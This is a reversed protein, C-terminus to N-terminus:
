RAGGSELTSITHPVIEARVFDGFSRCPMPAGELAARTARMADADEVIGDHGRTFFTEIVTRQTADDSTAHDAPVVYDYTSGVTTIQVNDPLPAADLRRMFPSHEDLDRLAASNLDPARVGAVDNVVDIAGKGGPVDRVRAALTAGPAGELPSSLTVVTGFPPYSPDGPRYVLKLFALVVVGGQSHAILDIERGPDNRQQQRLQAALRRASDLIPGYTDKKDYRQGHGGYSYYSVEDARYGLEAVPLDLSVGDADSRSDIGAIVMLRHGSGGGGDAAPASADCRRREDLYTLMGRGLAVGPNRALTGTLHEASARGVASAADVAISGAAAAVRGVGALEGRLGDLLSRREEYASFGFPETTPALHVVRTLDVAGFLLMPDVYEDRVRLGFHLVQAVHNAGTGGSTGVIDGARVHQGKRVSATALFSYSTRLADAHAIVVHLAGAVNGAVTVEGPGAARVPTGAAASFDVGLHGPGFRHVPPTFPRAVAGDVPRTWWGDNPADARAPAPMFALLVVPGVVCSCLIKHLVV